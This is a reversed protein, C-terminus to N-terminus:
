LRLRYQCGFVAIVLPRLPYPHGGLEAAALAGPGDPGVPGPGLWWASLIRLMLAVVAVLLTSRWAARM